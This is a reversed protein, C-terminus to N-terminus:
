NFTTIQSTQDILKGDDLMFLRDAKSFLRQDHTIM